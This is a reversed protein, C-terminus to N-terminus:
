RLADGLLYRLWAPGKSTVCLVGIQNSFASGTSHTINTHPVSYHFLGGKVPASRKGDLKESMFLRSNRLSVWENSFVAPLLEGVIEVLRVCFDCMTEGEGVGDELVFFSAPPLAVSGTVGLAMGVVVM